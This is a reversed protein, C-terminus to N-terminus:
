KDGIAPEVPRALASGLILGVYGQLHASLAAMANVDLGAVTVTVVGGTGMSGVLVGGLNPSKALARLARQAPTQQKPKPTKKRTM